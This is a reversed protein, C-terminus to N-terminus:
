GRSRRGDRQRQRPQLTAAHSGGKAHERDVAAPDSPDDRRRHEDVQLPPDRWARERGDEVQDDPRRGAPDDGQAQRDGLTLVRPMGRFPQELQVPGVSLGDERTPPRDWELARCPHALSGPVGNRSELLRETAEETIGRQCSRQGADDHRAVVEGVALRYHERTTRLETVDAVHRHGDRSSCRGRRGHEELRLDDLVAISIPHEDVAAKVHVARCEEAVQETPLGRSSVVEWEYEDRAPCRPVVAM